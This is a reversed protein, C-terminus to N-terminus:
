EADILVKFKESLEANLKKINDIKKQLRAILKENRTMAKLCMMMKQSKTEEVKENTITNNENKTNKKM